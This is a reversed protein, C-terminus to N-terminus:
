TKIARLLMSFARRMWSQHEQEYLYIRRRMQRGQGSADTPRKVVSKSAPHRPKHSAVKPKSKRAGSVVANAQARDYAARRDRTKLENWAQTVRRAFVSQEHGLDPHMYKLLLAMNRRLEGDSAGADAGLVRYSDAGPCLLVQEIFFAAAHRLTDASRGTQTRAAGLADRDGAAIKLVEAIGPPLRHARVYGARSPVHILDLAVHLATADDM